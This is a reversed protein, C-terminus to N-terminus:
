IQQPYSALNAHTYVLNVVNRAHFMDYLCVDKNMM